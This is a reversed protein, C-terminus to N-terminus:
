YYGYRKRSNRVRNSCRALYELYRASDKRIIHAHYDFPENLDATRLHLIDGVSAASRLPESRLRFDRKAPWTMMTVNITDTGFRMRVGPRNKKEPVRPDDHFAHPWGWFDAYADRAALPIFIEPSRRATGATTQGAGVDTTQLTLVFNNAFFSAGAPPRHHPSPLDPKPNSQRGRIPQKGYGPPPHVSLPLFPTPPYPLDRVAPSDAPGGTTTQGMDPDPGSESQVLGAAVLKELLATDLHKATGTSTDSWHDLEHEISRAVERDDTKSLDLNIKVTSEYNTYLGGETLNGSGILVEAASPSKFLYLKPHFTFPLPNHFVVIRGGPGVAHLLDLLGETSSGRHDIGAIIEVQAKQAFVGLREVVHRTGTRKVFAVAARFHTWPESLNRILYDGLRRASHPQHIYEM